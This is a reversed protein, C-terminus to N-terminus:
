DKPRRSVSHANERERREEVAVHIVVICVVILFSAFVLGLMTLVFAIFIDFVKM